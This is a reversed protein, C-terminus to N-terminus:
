TPVGRESRLDGLSVLSQCAISSLFRAKSHCNLTWFQLAASRGAAAPRPLARASNTRLFERLARYFEEPQELWPRHGSRDILKIEAKRFVSAFQAQCAPDLPDQRGAIALVSLEFKKLLPGLNPSLVLLRGVEPHRSEPRFAAAAALGKERDYFYGPMLLRNATALDGSAMAKDFAKREEPTLRMKINNLMNGSCKVEPEPAPSDALVLSTVRNPYAAAYEMALLGGASHGFVTWREFRLHARLAELDALYLKLNITDRNIASPLSRGTGRLEVLIARNTKGLGRAVPELYDCDAGLGGSLIVV